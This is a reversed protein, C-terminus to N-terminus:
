TLSGWCLEAHMERRGSASIRTWDMTIEGLENRLLVLRNTCKVFNLTVYCGLYQETQFLRVIFAYSNCFSSFMEMVSQQHKVLLM